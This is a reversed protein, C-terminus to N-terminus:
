RGRSENLDAEVIARFNKINLEFSSRSRSSTGMEGREVLELARGSVVLAEKYRAVDALNAAVIMLYEPNNSEIVEQLPRVTNPSFEPYVVYFRDAYVRLLRESVASVGTDSESKHLFANLLQSFYEPTLFECRGERMYQWLKEIALRNRGDFPQMEAKELLEEMNDTDKDGLLCDVLVSHMRLYVNDPNYKTAIQM